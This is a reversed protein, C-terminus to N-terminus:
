CFFDNKIIANGKSQSLKKQYERLKQKNEELM